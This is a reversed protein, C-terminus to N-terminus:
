KGSTLRGGFLIFHQDYREMVHGYRPGPSIGRLGHSAPTHNLEESHRITRRTRSADDILNRLKVSVTNNSTVSFTLNRLLSSNTMLPEVMGKLWATPQSILRHNLHSQSAPDSVNVWVSTGFDYILLDGLIKNLNYGGYVYLRDLHPLYISAHSTRDNLPPGGRWLWHWTDGETDFVSLSCGDGFYGKNCLCFPALKPGLTKLPKYCHGRNHAM